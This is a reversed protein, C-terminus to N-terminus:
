FDTITHSKRLHGYVEDIMRTTDGVLSAIDGLTLPSNRVLLSIFTHRFGHVHAGAFHADSWDEQEDLWRRLAEDASAPLFFTENADRERYARELLPRLRKRISIKVRRKNKPTAVGPVNFDITNHKLDIRDWTLEKMAGLRAGTDLGLAVLKTVATLKAKGISDGMARAHFVPEQDEDLFWTRRAGTPPLPFKRMEALPLKGDKFAFTFAANLTAIIRRLTQPQIRQQRQYDLLTAADITAIPLHGFATRMQRVNTLATEPRRVRAKLASEYPTLIQDLIRVPTSQAVQNQAAEWAAFALEAQARSVPGLRQRGSLRRGQGSNIYTFEISYHKTKPDQKLRPNIYTRLPTAITLKSM